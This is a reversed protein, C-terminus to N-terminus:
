VPSARLLAVRATKLVEDAARVGAAISSYELLGLADEVTKM